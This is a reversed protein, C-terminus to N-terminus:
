LGRSWITLVIFASFIGCLGMLAHYHEPTLLDVFQIPM